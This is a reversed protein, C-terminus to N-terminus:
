LRDEENNNIKRNKFSLTADTMIGSDQMATPIYESSKADLLGTTETVDLKCSIDRPLAQFSPFYKTELVRQFLRLGAFLPVVAFAQVGKNLGFIVFMFGLYMYLVLHLKNIVSIWMVGNAEYSKKNKYLFLYRSAIQKCYFYCITFPVILPSVTLFALAIQFFLLGFPIQLDYEFPKCLPQMFMDRARETKAGM